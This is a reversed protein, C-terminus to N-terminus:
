RPWARQVFRTTDTLDTNAKEFRQEEYQENGFARIVMLGSLSERSVLNLRDVLKQMAKFKPMAVALLILIIGLLVAVALAIIWSLSPSKGLAMIVGGVGLIPAYLVMRIGMVILMQVQQIDNTTRPLLSATSFATLSM